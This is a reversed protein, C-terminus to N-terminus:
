RARKAAGVGGWRGVAQIFVQPRAAYVHVFSSAHVTSPPRTKAQNAQCASSEGVCVGADGPHRRARTHYIEGALAASNAAPDGTLLKFTADPKCSKNEPRMANQWDRHYEGYRWTLCPLVKCCRLM